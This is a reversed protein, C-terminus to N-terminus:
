WICKRPTEGAAPLCLLRTVIYTAKNQFSYDKKYKEGKRTESNPVCHHSSWQQGHRPSELLRAQRHSQEQHDEHGAQAEICGVPDQLDIIDVAPGGAYWLEIVEAPEQQAGPSAERGGDERDQGDHPGGNDVPDEERVEEEACDGEYVTLGAFQVM